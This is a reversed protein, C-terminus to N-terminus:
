LNAFKQLFKKIDLNSSSNILDNLEKEFKELDISSYKDDINESFIMDDCKESNEDYFLEEHLKEGKRLGIIKIDINNKEESEPFKKENLTNEKLFSKILQHINIPKGMNLVLIKGNKKLSTSKLVLSVADSITMFYRTARKDTLTIPGGDNVQKKLIELLSGSSGIVNGFRVSCYNHNKNKQSYYYTILEGCRKTLGMVNTPRVAKDTSIFVFNKIESRNCEDLINIISKLNNRCSYKINEEVIDVHKHAAAHFVIDIKKQNFFNKLLDKNTLDLLVYEFNELNLAEIKKKLKALSYENSDLCYVKKVNLNKLQISIEQGISGAAGTVLASKNEIFNKVLNLDKIKNSQNIEIPLSYNQILNKKLHVIEVNNSKFIKTIERM